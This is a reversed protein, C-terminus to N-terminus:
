RAIREYVQGIASAVIEASNHSYLWQQAACGLRRRLAPQNVLQLLADSMSQRDHPPVLLGTELHKVSETVVGVDTAVAPLGAAMARILVASSSLGSSRDYPVAFIEAEDFIDDITASSVYGLIRTRDRIPSESISKRLHAVYRDSAPSGDSGGALWLETAHPTRRAVDETAQVLIDLGKGPGWFGLFLVAVPDDPHRNRRPPPKAARYAIHPLAQVGAHCPVLQRVAGTGAASLAFLHAARGVVARVIYRSLPTYDVVRLAKRVATARLGLSLPYVAPAIVLPPDHVTMCYRIAPLLRGLWFLTFFEDHQQYGVEAHILSFGDLAKSSRWHRVRRYIAWFQVLSNGMLREYGAPQLCWSTHSEVATRFRFAYDAIGSAM